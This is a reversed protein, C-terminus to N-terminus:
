NRRTGARNWEFNWQLNNLSNIPETLEAIRGSRAGRSLAHWGPIVCEGSFIRTRASSQRRRNGRPGHPRQHGSELNVRRLSHRREWRCFSRGRRGCGSSNACVAFQVGQKALAALTTGRNPALEAYEGSNYVNIKPVAKSKPDEYSAHAALAANYKAWMAYNFGFPASRHRVVIVLALDSNQLGHARM